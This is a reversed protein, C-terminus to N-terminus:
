GKKNFQNMFEGWQQKQNDNFGNVIQNLFENPDQKNQRANQFQQYAQPNVRKLQQELQGMLKQPAQKMMMQFLNNM